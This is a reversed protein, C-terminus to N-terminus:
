KFVYKKRFTPELTVYHYYDDFEFTVLIITAATRPQLINLKHHM